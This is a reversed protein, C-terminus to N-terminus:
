SGRFCCCMMMRMLPVAEAVEVISSDLCSRLQVLQVVHVAVVTELVERELGPQYGLPSRSSGSRLQDPQVVLSSPHSLLPLFWLIEVSTGLLKHSALLCLHCFIHFVISCLSEGHLRRVLRPLVGSKSSICYAPHSPIARATLPLHVPITCATHRHLVVAFATPM